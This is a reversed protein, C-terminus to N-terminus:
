QVILALQFRFLHLRPKIGYYKPRKLLSFAIKGGNTIIIKLGAAQEEIKFRSSANQTRLLNESAYNLNFSKEQNHESVPM